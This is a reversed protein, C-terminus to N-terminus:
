GAEDEDEADSVDFRVAARGRADDPAWHEEGRRTAQRWWGPRPDVAKCDCGLGRRIADDALPRAIEADHTGLVLVMFEADSGPDCELLEVALKQPRYLMGNPRRIAPLPTKTPETV